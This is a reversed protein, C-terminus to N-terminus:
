GKPFLFTIFARTGWGEPGTPTSDAWYRAGVGISVPQNGIRTLKSVQANIPISWEEAEWNYSTETNLTYTWATPTTYSVFPQLFTNNIDARDSDGAFSWVHNALAGVTWPGSQTLAVATPGLGWKEAGLLDDTATSLVAVPGVGWIWKGFAPKVPSFFMSLTTDGLGFQDGAGPFIDDQSTIPLIVRTILNWDSNLSTPIVPQINLVLREGDDASGINSDYNLQFPVSILSSIPNALKKALDASDQAQAAPACVLCAAALM